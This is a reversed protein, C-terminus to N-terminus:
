WIRDYRLNTSSDWGISGDPYFGCGHALFIQGSVVNQLKVDGIKSSAELCRFIGTPMGDKRYIKGPFLFGTSRDM